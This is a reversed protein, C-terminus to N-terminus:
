NIINQSNENPCNITVVCSIDKEGEKERKELLIRKITFTYSYIPLTPTIPLNPHSKM